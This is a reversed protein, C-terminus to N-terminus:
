RSLPAIAFAPSDLDLALVTDVSDQLSKKVRVEIGNASQAFEVEAGGLIRASVIRSEIAPLTISEGEWEFVHVYITNGKCTSAGWEGPLFPGGRTGYISEGNNRLWAGMERLREAQRAEIRGDPMPGVNLLLNGDGGCTLVLTQICEEFSKVTDDPKWAWQTGLTMCTEWPRERQFSGIKQEPTEYDGIFGGEKTVGEMGDRGKDVRNNIIISPQLDLVYDYLELGREHTWTPDWEGDFWLIGLPGYNAILERLQNKMYVVYRDYDATEPPRNDGKGRPVYDPHHWDIISYYTCFQIGQDRCADSLERLADRAFPTAMIDYDTYKSDWLTFGDHHKSTIVLYKMGADHALGAWEPASFGTPNFERYLADYEEVPVKTGRSWGIETGKLSVPGWHIFLGFRADSWWDLRSDADNGSPSAAEQGIAVFPLWVGIGTFLVFFFLKLSFRRIRNM